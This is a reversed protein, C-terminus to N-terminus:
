VLIRIFIGESREVNDVHYFTVYYCSLLLGYSKGSPVDSVRGVGQGKM